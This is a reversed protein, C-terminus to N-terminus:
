ILTSAHKALSFKTLGFDFSWPEAPMTAAAFDDSVRRAIQLSCSAPSLQPQRQHRDHPHRRGVHVIDDSASCLKGMGNFRPTDYPISSILSRGDTKGHQM